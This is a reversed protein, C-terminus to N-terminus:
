YNSILKFLRSDIEICGSRPLHKVKNRFVDSIHARSLADPITMNEAPEHQAVITYDHLASQLWIERACSLLFHDRGRGAQLVSIAVSSDCMLKITKGAWQRAWVKAAVVMNLMELHAIIHSQELIFSPFM